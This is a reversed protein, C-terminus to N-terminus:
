GILAAYTIHKELNDILDSAKQVAEKHRFTEKGIRRCEVSERDAETLANDIARVMIILDRKVVKNKLTTMRTIAEDLRKYLNDM